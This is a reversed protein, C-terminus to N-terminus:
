WSGSKFTYGLADWINVSPLNEAIL